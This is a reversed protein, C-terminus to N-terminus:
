ARRSGLTNDEHIPAKTFDKATSGPVERDALVTKETTGVARDDPLLGMAQAERRVLFRLHERPDRCEREAIAVLAQRENTSLPVSIRGMAM